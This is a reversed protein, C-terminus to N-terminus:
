MKSEIAHDYLKKLDHIRGFNEQDIIAADAKVMGIKEFPVQMQNCISELSKEDKTSVLVRGQAEGFLFADKRIEKNSVIEVAHSRLSFKKAFQPLEERRGQDRGPQIAGREIDAFIRNPLFMEDIPIDKSAFFDRIAKFFENLRRMLNTVMGSPRLDQNLALANKPTPDTFFRFAQAIAEEQLYEQFGELDGNQKLYEAQYRDQMDRNFFQNIWTDKAAKTLVKWEAPTFAGLEKLAHIVEHRMVGLPNDSDLALTIIQQAFMGDAKGNEISDVLRLGLNGLGFRKLIPLLKKRLDDAAAKM